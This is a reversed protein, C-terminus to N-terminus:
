EFHQVFSVEVTDYQHAAVLSVSESFEVSGFVNVAHAMISCDDGSQANSISVTHRSISIVRAANSRSFILNFKKTLNKINKCKKLYISDNKNGLGCNKMMEEM